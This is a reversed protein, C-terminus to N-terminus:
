MCSTSLCNLDECFLLFQLKEPDMEVSLNVIVNVFSYLMLIMVALLTVALEEIM